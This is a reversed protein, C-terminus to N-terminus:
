RIENEKEKRSSLKKELLFTLLFGGILCISSILISVFSFDIQYEGDTITVFYITFISGIVFGIISFFTNTEHKKLLYGMLKSISFFGIVLGSILPLLILANNFVNQFHLIDSLVLLIPSYLGLIIMIMSGSIGPVVLACAALIGGLLLYLIIWLTLKDFSIQINTVIFCLSIMIAISILSFVFGKISEKGQVKKYLSPIGGIILGAFLSIIVLPCHELGLTLPYILGLFGVVAGLLIPLLTFFSKKFDKFLNNISDIMEDYINVLVALTGGSVGPIIMAIGIAIGKIFRIISSRFKIFLQKM